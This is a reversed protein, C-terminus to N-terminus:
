IKWNKHFCLYKKVLFLSIDTKLSVKKFLQGKWDRITQTAVEVYRWLEIRLTMDIAMTKVFELDYPEGTIAEKWKSAQQM